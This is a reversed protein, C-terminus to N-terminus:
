AKRMTPRMGNHCAYQCRQTYVTGVLTGYHALFEQGTRNMGDPNCRPCRLAEEDPREYDTGLARPGDPRTETNPM